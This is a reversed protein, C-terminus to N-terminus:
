SRLGRLYRYIGLPSHCSQPHHCSACCCPAMGPRGEGSLDRHTQSLMCRLRFPKNCSPATNAEDIALCVSSEHKRTLFYAAKSGRIAKNWTAQPRSNLYGLM